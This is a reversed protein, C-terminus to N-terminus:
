MKVCQYKQGFNNKLNECTVACLNKSKLQFGHAYLKCAWQLINFEIIFSSACWNFKINRKWNSFVINFNYHLIFINKKYYIVIKVKIKFKDSLAIDDLLNFGLKQVFIEM